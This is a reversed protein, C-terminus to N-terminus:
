SRSRDQRGVEGVGSRIPSFRTEGSAGLNAGSTVHVPCRESWTPLEKGLWYNALDHRNKEAVQAIQAAWEPSSAFVIFNQSHAVYEQARFLQAHTVNCAAIMLLTAMGGYLRSFRAPRFLRAEM